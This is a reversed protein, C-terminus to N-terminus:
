SVSESPQPGRLQGELRRLARYFGVIEHGTITEEVPIQPKPNFIGLYNMAEDVDARTIGETTQQDQEVTGGQEDLWLQRAFELIERRGEPTCVMRDAYLYAKAEPKSSM